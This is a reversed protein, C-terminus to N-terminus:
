ECSLRWRQSRESRGGCAALSAYQSVAGTSYEIGGGYYLALATDLPPRSKQKLWAFKTAVRCILRPSLAM